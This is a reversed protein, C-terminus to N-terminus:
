APTLCHHYFNSASADAFLNSSQDMAVPTILGATTATSTFEYQNSQGNAWTLGAVGTAIWRLEGLTPLRGGRKNCDIFAATLTSPGSSALRVCMGLTKVEGGRCRKDLVQRGLSGVKIDKGVITRNKIDRSQVSNDKIQASGIMVGAYAVGSFAVLLALM